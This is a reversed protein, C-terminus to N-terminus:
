AARWFVHHLRPDVSNFRTPIARLLQKEMKQEFSPPVHLWRVTADHGDTRLFDAIPTTAVSHRRMRAPIGHRTSGVYLAEGDLEILYAACALTRVNGRARHLAALFWFRDGGVWEICAIDRPEAM